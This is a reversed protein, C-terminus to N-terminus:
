ATQVIELVCTNLLGSAPSWIRKYAEFRPAHIEYTHDWAKMLSRLAVIWQPCCTLIQFGWRLMPSLALLVLCNLTHGGTKLNWLLSLIKMQPRTGSNCTKLKVCFPMYFKKYNSREYRWMPWTDSALREIQTNRRRTRVNSIVARKALSFLFFSIEFSRTIRYGEEMDFTMRHDICFSM